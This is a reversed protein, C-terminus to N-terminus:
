EKLHKDESASPTFAKLLLLADERLKDANGLALIVSPKVFETEEKKLAASLEYFFGDADARGALECALKRTKADNSRMLGTIKDKYINANRSVTPANKSSSSLECLARLLARDDHGTGLRLFVRSIGSSDAAKSLEAKRAAPSLEKTKEIIELIDFDSM